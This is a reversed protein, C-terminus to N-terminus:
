RQGIRWPLLERLSAHVRGVCNVPIGRGFHVAQCARRCGLSEAAPRLRRASFCLAGLPVVRPYRHWDRGAALVAGHSPLM